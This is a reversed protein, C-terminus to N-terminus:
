SRECNWYKEILSRLSVVISFTRNFKLFPSIFEESTNQKHVPESAM